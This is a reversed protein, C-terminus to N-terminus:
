RRRFASSCIDERICATVILKERARTMAVYLVRLEEAITERRLALEIADRALTTYELKEDLDRLRSGLGLRDHLLLKGSLDSMNFRVDSGCLFVM